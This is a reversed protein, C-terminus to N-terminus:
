MAVIVKTQSPAVQMGPINSNAGNHGTMATNYECAKGEILVKSSGKKYLVKNMNVGSVVGGVTGAEDGSSMPIESGINLVNKMVFMVKTSFKV